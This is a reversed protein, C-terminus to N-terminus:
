PLNGFAQFWGGSWFTGPTFITSAPHLGGPLAQGIECSFDMDPLSCIDAGTELTCPLVTLSSRASMPLSAIGLLSRKWLGGLCPACSVSQEPTAKLSSPHGPSLWAM